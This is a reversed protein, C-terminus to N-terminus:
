PKRLEWSGDKGRLLYRYFRCDGPSPEIHRRRVLCDTAQCVGDRPSFSVGNKGGIFKHDHCDSAVLSETSSTTPFRLTPLM